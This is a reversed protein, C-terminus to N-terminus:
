FVLIFVNFIALIRHKFINPIIYNYFVEITERVTRILSTFVVMYPVLHVRLSQVEAVNGLLGMM